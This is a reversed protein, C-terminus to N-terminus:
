NAPHMSTRFLIDRAFAMDLHGFGPLFYTEGNIKLTTSTLTKIALRDRKVAQGALKENLAVSLVQERHM